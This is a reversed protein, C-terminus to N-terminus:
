DQRLQKVHQAHLEAVRLIDRHLLFIQKESALANSFCPCFSFAM